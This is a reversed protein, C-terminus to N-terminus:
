INELEVEESNIYDIIKVPLVNRVFAAEKKKNKMLLIKYYDMYKKIRGYFYNYYKFCYFQSLLLFSDFFLLQIKELKKNSPSLYSLYYFFFFVLPWILEIIFLMFTLQKLFILNQAMFCLCCLFWVYYLLNFSINNLKYILIYYIILPILFYFLRYDCQARKLFDKKCDSLLVVIFLYITIIYIYIVIDFFIFSEFYDLNSLSNPLLTYFYQLCIMLYVRLISLFLNLYKINKMKKIEKMLPDNQIDDDEIILNEKM